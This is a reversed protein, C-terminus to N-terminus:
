LETPNKAFSYDIDDTSTLDLKYKTLQEVLKKECVRKSWLERDWLSKWLDQDLFYNASSPNNNHRYVILLFYLAFYDELSAESNQQFYLEETWSSDYSSPYVINVPFLQLANQTIYQWFPRHYFFFYDWQGKTPYKNFIVACQNFDMM